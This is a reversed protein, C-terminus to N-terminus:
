PKSLRYSIAQIEADTLVIDRMQSRTAIANKIQSFSAGKKNSRTIDGHCSACRGKSQSQYLDAGDLAYVYFVASTGNKDHLDTANAAHASGIVCDGYGNPATDSAPSACPQGPTVLRHAINDDNFIRLTQGVFVVVPSAAANWAGTGTGARIRFDVRDPDPATPDGGPNPTPTAGPGSGASEAVTRSMVAVTQSGDSWVGELKVEVSGVSACQISRRLSDGTATLTCNATNTNGINWILAADSLNSGTARLDYSTNIVLNATDSMMSGGSTFAKLGLPGSDLSGLSSLQGTLPDYQFGGDCNQFLLALMFGVAPLLVANRRARRNQQQTTMNNPNGARSKMHSKM